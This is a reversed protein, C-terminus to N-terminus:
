RRTELGRVHNYRGTTDHFEDIVVSDLDTDPAERLSCQVRERSARVALEVVSLGRSRQGIM